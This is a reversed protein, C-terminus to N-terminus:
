EGFRGITGDNRDGLSREQFQEVVDADALPNFFRAINHLADSGDAEINQAGQEFV